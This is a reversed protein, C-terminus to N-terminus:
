AAERELFGTLVRAFEPAADVAVAHGAPVRELRANSLASKVMRQATEEELMASRSGRVLLTPCQVKGLAAWLTSETEAWEDESGVLDLLIPDLKPEFRGDVRRVLGTAAMRDVATAAGTPYLMGLLERYEEVSAYSRAAEAADASSWRWASESLSPGTDVLVLARVRDPHAAAFLTAVNGGLSHGVVM